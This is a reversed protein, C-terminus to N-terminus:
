RAGWTRTIGAGLTPFPLDAAGGGVRMDARVRVAWHDNFVVNAGVGFETVRAQCLDCRASYGTAFGALLQGYIDGKSSRFFQQRVGGLGVVEAANWGFQVEGVASTTPLLAWAGDAYLGGAPAITTFMGGASTQARILQQAMAPSASVVLVALATAACRVIGTM